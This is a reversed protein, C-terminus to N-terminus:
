DAVGYYHQGLQRAIEMARFADEEMFTHLEYAFRGGDDTVAHAITNRASALERLVAMDTADMAPLHEGGDGLLEGLGAKERPPHGARGLQDRLIIEVIIGAYLIVPLFKGSVFLDSLQTAYTWHLGPTGLGTSQPVIRKARRVRDDLSQADWEILKNRYAVWDM